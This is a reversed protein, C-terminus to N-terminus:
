KLRYTIRGKTLDYPTVEVEAAGADAAGAPAGPQAANSQVTGPQAFDVSGETVANLLADVENQSLVQNM